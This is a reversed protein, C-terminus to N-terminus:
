AHQYPLWSTQLCLADSSKDTITKTIYGAWQDLCDIREMKIPSERHKINFAMKKSWTNLLLLGMGAIDHYKSKATGHTPVEVLAHCHYNNRYAGPEIFNIRHCRQPNKQYTSRNGFIAKDVVNWYHRLQNEVTLRKAAISPPFTLTLALTHGWGMQTIWDRMEARTRHKEELLM